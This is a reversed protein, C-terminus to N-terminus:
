RGEDSVIILRRCNPCVGIEDAHRLADVRAAPLTVRCATCADGELRGLGVGGKDAAISEYRKLLADSVTVAVDARRKVLEAIEGQLVGGVEQYRAILAQEREALKDAADHVQAAKGKASDIREMEQLSEMEVKDRRRRFGDMERSISQAQRHDSTEMVKSQESDIRETLSAIEDQKAKLDLELKHVLLRAKEGLSAVEKIKQRTELIARKEPLEDLRKRARMIDLDLQQLTELSTADSM